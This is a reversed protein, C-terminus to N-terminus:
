RAATFGVWAPWERFERGDTFRLKVQTYRLAAIAMGVGSAVGTPANILDLGIRAAAWKPFVTDDAATDLIAKHFSDNTPGVLLVDILPRPRVSRGGLTPIPQPVRELHYSFRLSM